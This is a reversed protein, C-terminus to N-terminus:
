PQSTSTSPRTTSSRPVTTTSSRPVSSSSSSSTSSGSPSTSKTPSSTTTTRRVVTTTTSRVTSSPTSSVTPKGDQTGAAPTSTTGPKNTGQSSNNSPSPKQKKTQAKALSDNVLQRGTSDTGVITSGSNAKDSKRTSLQGNSPVQLKVRSKNNTVSVDANDRPKVTVESRSNVRLEETPPQNNLLRKKSRVHTQTGDPTSVAVTIERAESFDTAVAPQPDVSFEEGEPIEVLILSTGLGGKGITYSAGPIENVLNGNSIGIRKGSASTVLVGAAPQRTLGRVSGKTSMTVVTSGKTGETVAGFQDSFPGSRVSMPTLELTGAGGEWTYPTGDTNETGDTYSWRETTTDVSIYKKVGPFNNDYIHIRFTSQDKTVAFPTVAHGYGDAYIGLTYGTGDRLGTILQSVLDSPMKERSAAAAARVEPMFQTSWWLTIEQDLSMEPRKLAAAVTAGSETDAPKQLGLFYRMSLTAMGECHGGDLAEVWQDLTAQASPNLQCTEATDGSACVAETGFLKVMLRADPTDTAGEVGSWNPFAFDNQSIRFGGDACLNGPGLEASEGACEPTPSLATESTTAAGGCSAATLLLVTVTTLYLSSIRRAVM